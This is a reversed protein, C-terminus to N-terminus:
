QCPGDMEDRTGVTGNQCDSFGANRHRDPNFGSTRCTRLNALSLEHASDRSKANAVQRTRNEDEWSSPAIVLQSQYFRSGCDTRAEVAFASVVPHGESLSRTPALGQTVLGFRLRPICSCLCGPPPWAGAGKM